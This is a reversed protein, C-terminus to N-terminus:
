TRSDAQAVAYEALGALAQPLPERHLVGLRQTARTLAVYLEAAGRPGNALIRQPDVVLVADFELGKTEAPTVAGPVGALGIVVSTGERGAENRVFEEIVSPLEDEDVWRSWPQVGCARVSEPPQVAPAFEALLAAAVNMIEVPTRYNVSLPRYIWRGPV